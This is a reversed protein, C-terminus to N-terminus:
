RELIITDIRPVISDVTLPTLGAYLASSYSYNFYLFPVDYHVGYLDFSFIEPYAVARNDSALSFRAIMLNALDIPIEMRMGDYDIEVCGYLFFDYFDALAQNDIDPFAESVVRVDGSSKDFYLLVPYEAVFNTFDSEVTTSEWGSMRFYLNNEDPSIEVPYTIKKEGCMGTLTWKGIWRRYDEMPTEQSITLDTRAYYGTLEGEADVGVMFLIYDGHRLRDEEHECAESKIVNPWKVNELNRFAVYDEFCFRLNGKYVNEFDSKALLCPVYTDKSDGVTCTFVETEDNPDDAAVKREKYKIEWSPHLEFVDPDRLTTFVLEAPEGALKGDPYIRSAVIRYDTKADLNEVTINRNTGVNGVIEGHAELIGALEAELLASAETQMDQTVVYYWFDDQSGDHNLRIYAKEQFVKDVRLSLAVEEEVTEPGINEECGSLFIMGCALLCTGILPRVIRCLTDSLHQRM